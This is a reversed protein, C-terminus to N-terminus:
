SVQLYQCHDISTFDPLFEQGNITVHCAKFGQVGLAQCVGVQTSADITQLDAKLLKWRVVFQAESLHLKIKSFIFYLVVNFVSLCVFWCLVLWQVLWQGFSTGLYIGVSLGLFM